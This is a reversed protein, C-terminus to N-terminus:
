GVHGRGPEGLHAPVDVHEIAAIVARELHSQRKDHWFGIRRVTVPTGILAGIDVAARHLGIEIPLIAQDFLKAAVGAMTEEHNSRWGPPPSRRPTITQGRQASWTLRFAMRSLCSM